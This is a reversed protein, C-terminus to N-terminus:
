LKLYRLRELTKIMDMMQTSIVKGVRTDQTEHRSLGAMVVEYQAISERVIGNMKEIRPELAKFEKDSIPYLADITADPLLTLDYVDNDLQNPGRMDIIENYFMSRQIIFLRTAKKANDKIGTM